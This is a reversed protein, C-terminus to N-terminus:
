GVRSEAGDLVFGACSMARPPGVALLSPYRVWVRNPFNNPEVAYVMHVGGSPEGGRALVMEGAMGRSFQGRILCAM